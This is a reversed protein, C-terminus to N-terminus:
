QLSGAGSNPHEQQNQGGSPPDHACRSGRALGAGPLLIFCGSQRRFLRCLELGQSVELSRDLGRSSPANRRVIGLLAELSQVQVEGPMGRRGDQHIHFAVVEVRPVVRELFGPIVIRSGLVLVVPEEPPAHVEILVTIEEGDEFSEAHDLEIPVGVWSFPSM